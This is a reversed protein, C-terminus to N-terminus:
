TVRLSGTFRYGLVCERLFFLEVEGVEGDYGAFFGLAYGLGWVVAAAELNAVDFDGAQVRRAVGLVADAPVGLIGRAALADDKRAVRQEVGAAPAKELAAGGLHVRREVLRQGRQRRVRLHERAVLVGLGIHLKGHRHQRTLRHALQLRKGLRIPLRLALKSDAIFLHTKHKHKNKITPILRSVSLYNM